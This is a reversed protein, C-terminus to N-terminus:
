TFPTLSHNNNLALEVNKRSLRIDIYKSSKNSPPTSAGLAGGGKFGGSYQTTTKNQRRITDQTGLTALKKPNVM